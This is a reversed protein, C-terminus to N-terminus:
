SLRQTLSMSEVAAQALRANLLQKEAAWEQTAKALKANLLQKEAAWEAAAHALRANLLKEAATSTQEQQRLKTILLHTEEARAQEQRKRMGAAEAVEARNTAFQLSDRWIQLRMATEGKALRALVQRLMGLGARHRHAKLKAELAAHMEENHRGDAAVKTAGRWVELRMATEGKALRALVQRLMRLGAGQGQKKLCAGLKQQMSRGQADLQAQRWNGRMTQLATLGVM